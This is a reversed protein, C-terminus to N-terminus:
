KFTKFKNFDITNKPAVTVVAKKSAHRKTIQRGRGVLRVKKLVKSVNVSRVKAGYAYEVAKAIEVKNANANVLFTYKRKAQQDSSKESVVPSILVQTLEM